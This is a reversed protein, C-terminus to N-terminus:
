QHDRFAQCALFEESEMSDGLVPCDQHDRTEPNVLTEQPDMTDKTVGSEKSCLSLLM